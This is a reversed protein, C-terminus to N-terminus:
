TPRWSRPRGVPTGRSTVQWLRWDARTPAVLIVNYGRRALRDAYLAGLGASAGTILASSRTNMATMAAALIGATM